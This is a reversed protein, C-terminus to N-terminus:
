KNLQRQNQNASHVNRLKSNNKMRMLKCISQSYKQRICAIQKDFRSRMEKVKGKGGGQKLRDDQKRLKLPTTNVVQQDEEM